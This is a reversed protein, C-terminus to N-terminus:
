LINTGFGVSGSIQLNAKRIIEFKMSQSLKSGTQISSSSNLQFDFEIQNTPIRSIIFHLNFNEKQGKQLIQSVDCSYSSSNADTKCRNADANSTQLNLLFPKMEITLFTNLSAEGSNIVTINIEVTEHLGEILNKEILQGNYKSIANLTLLSICKKTQCGHEFDIQNTLLFYKM